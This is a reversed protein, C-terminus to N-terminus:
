KLRGMYSSSGYRGYIEQEGWVGELSGNKFMFMYPKYGNYGGFSNKANIQADLKYGFTLKGGEIPASRAWGQGVTGWKYQASSPDKLVGEIFSQAKSQAEQQSIPSGYDAKALEDATPPGSACGVLLASMLFSVAVLLRKM